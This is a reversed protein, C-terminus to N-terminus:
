DDEGLVNRRRAMVPRFAALALFAGALGAGVKVLIALNALPITGASSLRGLRGVPLFNYFFNDAGAAYGLVALALFAAAGVADAVHCTPETILRDSVGRGFSLVVLAAAAALIVGGAFGGGPALHGTAAVYVGFVVIFGTVLRTTNRVIPTM